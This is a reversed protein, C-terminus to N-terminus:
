GAATITKKIADKIYVYSGKSGPVNGSVIIIGKEINTDVIKLNQITVRTSGMHGAMKKNKFVKGPDQRGGTSGHSRHSVSVGHSAELGRFNHRKMSGAFGKGITTGVVDVFQGVVFHDVRLTSGIDIFFSASIRFEKLKQKPAVNANAFVQRMPKTVKSLKKDKVGVVLANYGDREQTKQGVVQCDEVQLFTVTTREGKENFISSMGIKKAILGTRM